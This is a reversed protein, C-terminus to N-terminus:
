IHRVLDLTFNVIKLNFVIVRIHCVAKKNM